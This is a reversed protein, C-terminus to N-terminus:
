FMLAITLAEVVAAVFLLAVVLVYGLSGFELGYLLYGLDCRLLVDEM